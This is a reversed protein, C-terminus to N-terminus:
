NELLILKWCFKGLSLAQPTIHLLKPGRLFLYNQPIM